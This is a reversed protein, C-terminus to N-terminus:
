DDFFQTQKGGLSGVMLYASADDTVMLGQKKMREVMAKNDTSYHIYKYGKEAATDLVKALLFDLANGRDKAEPDAITFGQIAVNCDTACFCSFAIPVGDRCVFFANKPITGEDCPTWSYGAFWELLIGFHAKRYKKITLM